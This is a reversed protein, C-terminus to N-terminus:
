AITATRSKGGPPARSAISIRRLPISFRQLAVFNFRNQEADNLVRAFLLKFLLKGAVDYRADHDGDHRQRKRDRQRNSRADARLLAQVRGDDCAEKDREEAARAHLDGAGGGRERGDHGADDRGVADIAEDRRGADFDIGARMSRFVAADAPAEDIIADLEARAAEPGRLQVLFGVLRTRAEAKDEADNVRARLFAEAEDTRDKSLYWSVLSNQVDQNAPDMEVMKLLQAELAQDDGLQFLIAARMQNLDQADPDADLGADLVELAATMDQNRTLDDLVVRRATILAPDAELLARADAVAAKRAEDSRDQLAKRYAIMAAIAKLAPDDPALQAAKTGYTEVSQWNGTELSIEALARNGQPDEPYQEVLRLYQSYAERLDGRERVAEAYALRADRHTGDLQFVNRFEVLARDVDGAQLLEMGSQYREQANEEDSKCASLAGVGLALVLGLAVKNITM